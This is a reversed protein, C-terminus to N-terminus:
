SAAEDSQQSYTVNIAETPFGVTNAFVEGNEVTFYGTKSSATNGQSDEMVFRLAYDGDDLPTEYFATDATVTVATGTWFSLGSSNDMPAGMLLPTVVDGEQLQILERSAAGSEDSPARLGEIFFTEEDFDYVVEMSYEEDNLLVPVSYYNYRDNYHSLEMFCVSGDLSGWVGRFNDEFVGTEWNAVIDDDLGLLAIYGEDADFFLLEYRITSLIDQASEGLDLTIYGEENMTLPAGSWGATLVNELEPLSSIDMEELYAMGEESVAGTLSYEYFYAMARSPSLEAFTAIDDVTGSYPYFAALGSSNEHYAGRTNYAVCAQLAQQIQENEEPFLDATKAAFDGLDVMDTYGQWRTNGGYNEVERSVQGIHNVLAPDSAATELARRGYADYADLLAPVEGLDTVSLTCSDVAEPWMGAEVGLMYSDCIRISLDLPDISPTEAFASMWGEYEWGVGPEVDESAVMYQAIGSFTAATDITAMLCADFGIIDLPPNESNEDFVATFAEHMEALSLADKEFQDDFAAGRLSGGGHNWIIAMTRKAPYQEAGFRLFDELTQADGMNQIEQEELLTLEGNEALFRQSKEPDIDDRHWSDSGGTQIVVKVNQPLAVALMEELDATAAGFDSELNSGCLYWYIAWEDEAHAAAAAESPASESQAPATCAVLSFLFLAILVISCIRKM